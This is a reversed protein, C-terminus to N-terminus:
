TTEETGNEYLEDCSLDLDDNWVIGYGGADVRVTDFAVEGTLLSGFAPYKDIMQSGVNYLKKSGDVFEVRLRLCPLPAVSKVKHFM